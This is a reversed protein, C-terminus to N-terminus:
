TVNAYSRWLITGFSLTVVKKLSCGKRTLSSFYQTLEDSNFEERCHIVEAKDKSLGLASFMEDDNNFYHARGTILIAGSHNTILDKVGELSDARIARLKDTDVSWAQSGIEDFGDLLLVFAGSQFTRLMESAVGDLGLDDFHRRIIEQYRKLGWNNRLDVSIPYKYKSTSIKSLAYFVERVCRSKGSGYDGILVLHKGELLINCIDRVTLSKESESISYKV